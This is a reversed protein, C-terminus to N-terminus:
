YSIARTQSCATLSSLGGSNTGCHHGILNNSAEIGPRQSLCPAPTSALNNGDGAVVM